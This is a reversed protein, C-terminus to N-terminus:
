RTEAAFREIATIMTDWSLRTKGKAVHEAFKQYLKDTFINVLAAALAKENKPPVIFGTKGHEVIEPLSGVSTVVVPRGYGYAVPVVASGTASLYPAVVVDAASFFL